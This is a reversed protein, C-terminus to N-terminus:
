LVFSCDNRDSGSRQENIGSPVLLREYVGDTVFSLVLSDAMLVTCACPSYM